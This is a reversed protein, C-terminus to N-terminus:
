VGDEYMQLTIQILQILPERLFIGIQKAESNIVSM